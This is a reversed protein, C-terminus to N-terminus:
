SDITICDVPCIRACKDCAICDEGEMHLRYRGPAPIPIKELPYQITVAKDAESFYDKDEIGRNTRQKGWKKLHSATTKFGIGLSKISRRINNFYSM